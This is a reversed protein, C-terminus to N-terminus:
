IVYGTGADWALKLYRCPWIPAQDLQDWGLVGLVSWRSPGVHLPGEVRESRHRPDEADTGVLDEEM